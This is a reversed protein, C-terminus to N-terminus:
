AQKAIKVRAKVWQGKGQNVKSHESQRSCWLLTINLIYIIYIYTNCLFFIFPPPPPPLNSHITQLTPTMSM